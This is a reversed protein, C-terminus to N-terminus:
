KGLSEWRHLCDYLKRVGDLYQITPRLYAGDLFCIHGAQVAQISKWQPTKLAKKAFSRLGELFIIVEPNRAIVAELSVQGSRFPLDQFINEGGAAELLESTLSGKGPTLIPDAWTQIFVQKRPRQASKQRIRKLGKRARTVLARARKERHLLRGLLLVNQELERVTKPHLSVVPFGLKKLPRVIRDQSPGDSFVVDPNLKVILEINPDFGGGVVRVEGKRKRQRLEKPFKDYRTGGVLKSCDLLCIMESTSPVLSVVREILVPPRSTHGLDDVVTIKSRAIRHPTCSTLLFLSFLAASFLGAAKKGRRPSERQELVEM